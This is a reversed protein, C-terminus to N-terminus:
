VLTLGIVEQHSHDQNFALLLLHALVVYVLIVLDHLHPALHVVDIVIGEM